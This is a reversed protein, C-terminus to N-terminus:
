AALPVLALPQAETGTVFKGWLEMFARRDDFMEERDYAAFAADDDHDDRSHALVEKVLDKSFRAKMGPAKQWWGVVSTRFGHPTAVEGFRTKLM